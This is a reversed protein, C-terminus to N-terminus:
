QSKIDDLSFDDTHVYLKQSFLNLDNNSLDNNYPITNTTM